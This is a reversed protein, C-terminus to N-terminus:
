IYASTPPTFNATWRLIGRSFRFEDIYGIWYAAASGFAGVGFDGTTNYPAAPLTVTGGVQAGNVFLKTRNTSSQYTACIHYWTNIAITGGQPGAYGSGDSSFCAFVIQTGSRSIYFSPISENAITHGCIFKEGSVSTTYIWLDITIDTDFTFDASDAWRYASSGNLNLCHSGFKVPSTSFTPSGVTSSISRASASADTTNNDLHLLLKTYADNGPTGVAQLRGGFGSLQNLILM